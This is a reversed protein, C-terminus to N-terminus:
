LGKYPLVQWRVKGISQRGIPRFQPKGTLNTYAPPAATGSQFRQDGTLYMRAGSCIGTAPPVCGYVNSGQVKSVLGGLLNIYQAIVPGTSDKLGQTNGYFSAQLNVVKVVSGDPAYGLQANDAMGKGWYTNGNTPKSAPGPTSSVDVNNADKYSRTPFASIGLTNQFTNLSPDDATAFKRDAGRPDVQYTLNDQIAVNGNAYIGIGIDKQISPTDYKPDSANQTPLELSAATEDDPISIVGRCSDKASVSGSCGVSQDGISGDVFVVGNLAKGYDIPSGNNVQVTTKNTSKNITFKYRYTTATPGTGNTKRIEIVQQDAASVSPSSKSAYLNVYDVNGSIYIGSLLNDMTNNANLTSPASASTLWNAYTNPLMTSTSDTPKSTPNVWYVGETVKGSAPENITSGTKTNRIGLKEQVDSAKMLDDSFNASATMQGILAAKLQFAGSSPVDIYGVSDEGGSDGFKAGGQFDVYKDMTVNTANNVKGKIFGYQKNPVNVTTCTTGSAKFKCGATTFAGKFVVKADTSKPLEFAPATNIHTVGDFVGGSLFPNNQDFVDIFQAYKAFSGAPQLEMVLINPSKIIQRGVVTGTCTDAGDPTIIRGESVIDFTYVMRFAGSPAHTGANNIAEVLSLKFNQIQPVSCVDKGSVSTIKNAKYTINISGDPAPATVSAVNPNDTSWSLGTTGTTGGPLYTATQPSTAVTPSAPSACSNTGNGLALGLSGTFSQAGTTAKIVAKNTSPLTEGSSLFLTLPDYLKASDAPLTLLTGDKAVFRGSNAGTSPTYAVASYNAAGTPQEVAVFLPNNVCLYALISPGTLSSPNVSNASGVIQDLAVAGGAEAANLASVSTTQNSAFQVENSSTLLVGLVLITLLLGITVTLLLSFGGKQRKSKWLHSRSAYGLSM